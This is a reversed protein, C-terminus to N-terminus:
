VGWEKRLLNKWAEFDMEEGDVLMSGKGVKKPRPPVYVFSKAHNSNCRNIAMTGDAVMTVCDQCFTDFCITCLSFGDGNPWDRHCPGDCSWMELEDPEEGEYSGMAYAVAIINKTDNAALLATLLDLLGVLDNEPDDDSLIHIGHKISPRVLARAETQQGKLRHYVALSLAAATQLVFTLPNSGGKAQMVLKELKTAAEEAEPTGVGANVAESLYHQALRYSAQLKIIGIETEDKSSAYTNIISEWRKVAKEQDHMFESYIRALGLEINAATVTKLAKRAAKAALRWSEVMLSLTGTALAADLAFSFFHSECDSNLWVTQTLRSYDEDPVMTDALQALLDITAQHDQHSNHHELLANICTNCYPMCEYAKVFSKFRKELDGLQKYSDGMRELITHLGLQLDDNEPDLQIEESIKKAAEEDVEIAKQYQGQLTYTIAMGSKTIWEDPDLELAKTFYELATDYHGVERLAIACRRYLLATKELDGFEAAEILEEASPNFTELFNVEKGKNLSQYSWVVAALPSVNWRKECLWQKACFMVVPKFTTIPDEETSSIFEREDDSLAMVVEDHKWWQRVAQISANTSVWSRYGNWGSIVEESRFVILLLKAIETRDELSCDSPSTTLLHHVWTVAAYILMKRSDGAKESFESDAFIRLLTKLVHAKAERYNVGVALHGQGASVKSETEDRFFDGISAHCFTVTTTQLDSNFDTFNEVDEFAEEDGDAEDDSGDFIAPKTSMNQLEATTLGDERDLTFFSAFQRRLAGELYIMGDGEPSKLKLIADILGLTLPQQSCTVWPLIENLYELEEESSSMSFNSLVHRLIEKLGKPPDDLARRISSENRKKVLEQLMLNVWLFMGEAGASLKEVVEQRLKTSVRRLVVSKKISAHIYQNIDSSNKQTTVHITPVEIELGELLQDSIHPRGVVALQLRAKEPADYLDKALNLFIKREEDSAEDVGDLLIYVSSDVGPKKLFYDVFLLRWASELSSIREYQEITVIHKRYVPDSKSIQFALDRLALHISRTDPNDDKFFFYGVSILSTSESGQPYQERLLSIINTSLYSKGAGPNGSVFIIPTERDLWGQFIDENRVWDGTGPIRAKNIKEYWDQASDTKSPRLIKNILTQLSKERDEPSEPMGENASVVLTSLMEHVENVQYSMQNVTMGTEMVTTNTSTVTVSIDDVVRGTRKSETLTEAGVLRAEVSTLKDLKGMAAQLADSNGLLFNRTFKLLRGRRITKTSLAFIEILTVLIDSLKDSLADSIFEQSYAKLRITFDKLTAMLDQIADYSTSVGKAASMLYTVAGFVLSSPPFVMSAGGAALNGFLEVPILATKLVDFLVGRKERFESFKANRADIESMLDDVNQIKALFEVDLSEDTIDRYKKIARDYIAPIQNKPGAM